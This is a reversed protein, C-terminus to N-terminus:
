LDLIISWTSLLIQVVSVVISTLFFINFNTFIKKCAPDMNSSRIDDFGKSSFGISVVGAAWLVAYAVIKMKKCSPLIPAFAIFLLNWQASAFLIWCIIQYYYLHRVVMEFSKQTFCINQMLELNETNNSNSAMSILNKFKDQENKITKLSQDLYVGLITLGAIHTIILIRQVYFNSAECSSSSSSTTIVPRRM